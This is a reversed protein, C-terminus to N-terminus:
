QCAAAAAEQQEQERTLREVTSPHLQHMVKGDWYFMPYYAKFGPALEPVAAEQLLKRVKGGSVSWESKRFVEGQAKFIAEADAIRGKLANKNTAVFFFSGETNESEPVFVYSYDVEVYMKDM